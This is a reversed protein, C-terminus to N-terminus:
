DLRWSGRHGNAWALGSMRAAGAPQVSLLALDGDRCGVLLQEEVVALEGPQLEERDVIATEWVKFRDTDVLGWAGPKPNFARVMRDVHDRTQTTFDLRAEDPTVKQAKTAGEGQPAPAATGALVAPLHDALLAAGEFALRETLSGATDTQEIPTAKATIIDGTDMGADLQMLTVGTTSDGALIARAVPAAGRWRPLLSFHVNVFGRRPVTLLSEPLIQGYAVVVALDIGSLEDAIEIAKEPQSVALGWETAAQKVAPPQPRGSRGRPKDPRTVVLRVDTHEHLAELSPVAAAPTGFFATVGRASM